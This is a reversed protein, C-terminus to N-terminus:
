GGNTKAFRLLDDLTVDPASVYRFGGDPDYVLVPGSPTPLLAADGPASGAQPFVWPLSRLIVREDARPSVIFGYSALLSPVPLTTDVSEVLGDVAAQLIWM